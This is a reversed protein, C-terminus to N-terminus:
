LALFLYEENRKKKKVISRICFLSSISKRGRSGGEMEEGRGGMREEENGGRKEKKDGKLEFM